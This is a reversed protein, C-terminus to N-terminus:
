SRSVVTPDFETPFEALIDTGRDGSLRWEWSAGESYAMKKSVIGLETKARRVTGWALGKADTADKVECQRLPGDALIQELFSIAEALASSKQAFEVNDLITKADQDLYEGWVVTSAILDPVTPLEVEAVQFIFGGRDPGINSKARVIVREEQGTDKSVRKVVVMVVRPLATFAISGTIREVVDKGHTGKSLHTVGIVVCRAQDAFDVVPQLNRRVEANKHSDGSVSSVIPDLILMRVGGLLKAAELVKPYDRSADFARNGTGNEGVAGNIFHVNKLDAGAALLRPVLTDDAGDEGSWILVIGRESQTGDPWYGGSSITAAFSLATTTKSSGPPGGIIHFKKNALWGKWAWDVPLPVIDAACTFLLGQEQKILENQSLDKKLLNQVASRISSDVARCLDVRNALQWFSTEHHKRNPGFDPKAVVARSVQAAIEFERNIDGDETLEALIIISVDPFAERLEAGFSSLEDAFLPAVGIAGVEIAAYVASNIETSIIILVDNGANSPMEESAFFAAEGHERGDIVVEHLFKDVMRIACLSGNIIRKYPIVLVSGNHLSDLVSSDIGNNDFMKRIDERAMEKFLHESIVLDNKEIFVHNKQVLSSESWIDVCVSDGVRDCVKVVIKSM